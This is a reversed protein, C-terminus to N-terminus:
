RGKAPVLKYQKTFLPVCTHSVQGPNRRRTGPRAEFGRGRARLDSVRGVASRRWGYRCIKRLFVMRYTVPVIHIVICTFASDPNLLLTIKLESHGLVTQLCPEAWVRQFLDCQERYVGLSSIPSPGPVAFPCLHVSPFPLLSLFPHFLFSPFTSPLFPCPEM